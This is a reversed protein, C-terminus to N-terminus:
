LLGILQDRDLMKLKTRASLPAIRWRPEAFNEADDVIIYPERPRKVDLRGNAGIIWLGRPEISLLLRDGDFIELVPLNRAPVGYKVMLEEHMAVHRRTRVRYPTPLWSEILAYLDDIRHAWDDVRRVVHDQTLEGDTFEDLADSM